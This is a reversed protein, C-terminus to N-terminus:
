KTEAYDRLEKLESPTMSAPQDWGPYNKNFTFHKEITTAGRSLALKAYDLGITHDSFGSYGTESFEDPFDRVGGQLIERRSMCWLIEVEPFMWYQPPIGNNPASAIVHLDTEKVALLLELNGCSRQALKVTTPDHTELWWGLRSLDFVSCLFEINAKQCESELEFMQDKTLQANKLEEYNTDGPRKITIIDYLQFKAIDAGHEKAAHILDKAMEM